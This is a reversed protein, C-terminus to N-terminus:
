FVFYETLGLLLEPVTVYGKLYVNEHKVSRRLREVFGTRLETSPVKNLARGCVDGHQHGKTALGNRWSSIRFAIWATNDM